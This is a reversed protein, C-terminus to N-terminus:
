WTVYLQGLSPISYMISHYYMSYMISHYKCLVQSTNTPHHTCLYTVALTSFILM